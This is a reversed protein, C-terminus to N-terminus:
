VRHLDEQCMRPCIFAQHSEVANTPQEGFNLTSIDRDATSEGTHTYDDRKRHNWGEFQSDPLAGANGSM